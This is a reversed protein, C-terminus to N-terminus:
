FLYSSVLPNTLFDFDKKMGLEELLHNMPNSGLLGILSKLLTPVNNTKANRMSLRVDVKAIAVVTSASERVHEFDGDASLQVSVGVVGNVGFGKFLPPKELQLQFFFDYVFKVLLSLRYVSQEKKFLPIMSYLYYTSFFGNQSFM